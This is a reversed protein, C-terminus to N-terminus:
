PQTGHIVFRQHDHERGTARREVGRRQVRERVRAHEPHADFALTFGGTERRADPVAVAALIELVPQPTPPGRPALGHSNRRSSPRVLTVTICSNPAWVCLGPACGSGKAGVSVRRDVSARHNSLQIRDNPMASTRKTTMRVKRMSANWIGDPLM